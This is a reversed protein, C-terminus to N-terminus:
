DLPPPQIGERAWKAMLERKRADFQDIRDRWQQALQEDHFFAPPVHFIEALALVIRASPNTAVGQRLHGIYTTSVTVGREKLAGQLTGSTWASGDPSPVRRMLWVM